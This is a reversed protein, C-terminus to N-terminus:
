LSQAEANVNVYYRSLSISPPVERRSEHVPLICCKRLLDVGGKWSDRTSYIVSIKAKQGGGAEERGGTESKCGKAERERGGRKERVHLM